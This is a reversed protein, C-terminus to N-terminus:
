HRIEANDRNSGMKASGMRSGNMALSVSALLMADGYWAMDSRLHLRVPAEGKLDSALLSRAGIRRTWLWVAHGDGGM